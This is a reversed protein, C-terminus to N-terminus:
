NGKMDKKVAAVDLRLLAEEDSLKKASILKSIETQIAHDDQKFKLVASGMAHTDASPPCYTRIIHVTLDPLTLDPLTLDFFPLASLTASLFLPVTLIRVCHM